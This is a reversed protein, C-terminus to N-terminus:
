FFTPSLYIVMALVSTVLASPVVSTIDLQFTPSDLKHVQLTDDLIAKQHNLCEQLNEILNSNDYM